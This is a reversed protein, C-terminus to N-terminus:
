GYIGEKRLMAILRREGDTLSHIENGSMNELRSVVDHVNKAASMAQMTTYDQDYLGGADPLTHWRECQWALTLVSPPPEGHAADVAATLLKKPRGKDQCRQDLLVDTLLGV